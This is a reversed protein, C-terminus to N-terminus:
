GQRRVAIAILILVVAVAQAIIRYWMLRNSKKAGEVGGLGIRGIGFALIIAVVACAILVFTTMPSSFM